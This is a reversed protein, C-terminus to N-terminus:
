GDSLWYVLLGTNPQERLHAVLTRLVHDERVAAVAGDAGRAQAGQAVVLVPRPIVLALWGSIAWSTCGTFVFAEFDSNLDTLGVSQM